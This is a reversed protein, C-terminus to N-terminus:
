EKMLGCTQLADAVQQTQAPTLPLVPRPPACSCIKLLNVCAYIVRKSTLESILKLMPDLAATLRRAEDSDGRNVAAVIAMCPEPFLGGIVSYWANAGALLSEPAFRDSSAGISFDDRPAVVQFLEQNRNTLAVVDACAPNKLGVISPFASLRKILSPEFTFKTTGPNNYIVLPLTPVATVIAKFHEFVEDETLPLYSVPAVLGADAGAEKAERALRITESTRVHGVGVLLLPVHQNDAKAVRLVAVAADICRRRESRELYAYSGTSGLLGISDVKAVVLRQVLKSVGDVDVVGDDSQPTIPFASLGTILKM